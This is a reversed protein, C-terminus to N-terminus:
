KKYSANSFLIEDVSIDLAFAILALTMVSTGRKGLEVNRIHREGCDVLEALEIREMGLEERRKQITEGIKQYSNFIRNYSM